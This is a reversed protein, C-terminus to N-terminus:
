CMCRIGAIKQSNLQHCMMMHKAMDRMSGRAGHGRRELFKSDLLHVQKCILIIINNINHYFYM